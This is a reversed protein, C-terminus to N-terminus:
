GLCTFRDVSFREVSFRDVSIRKFFHLFDTLQFGSLEPGTLEFSLIPRGDM